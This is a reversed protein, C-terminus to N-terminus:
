AFRGELSRAVSLLTADLVVRVRLSIDFRDIRFPEYQLWMQSTMDWQCRRQSAGNCLRCTTLSSAYPSLHIAWLERETEKQEAGIIHARLFLSTSRAKLPPPVSHSCLALSSSAILTAVEAAKRVRLLFPLWSTRNVQFHLQSWCDVQVILVKMKGV